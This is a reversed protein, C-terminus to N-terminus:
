ERGDRFGFDATVVIAEAGGFERPASPAYVVGIGADRWTPSLVIERHPPSGLWAAVVARADVSRGESAMLAEGVSWTSFGRNTYYRKIRESFATGDASEHGFFGKALMAESHNRAASRLSPAARLPRLGRAARVRNTERIVAAELAARREVRTATSPAGVPSLALVAASVVALAVLFRM